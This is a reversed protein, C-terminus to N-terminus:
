PVVIMGTKIVKGSSVIVRVVVEKGGIVVPRFAGTTGHRLLAKPVPAGTQRVWELIKAVDGEALRPDLKKFESFHKSFAHGMKRLPRGAKVSRWPDKGIIKGAKQTWVIRSSHQLESALQLHRAAGLATPGVLQWAAWINTLTRIEGMAEAMQEYSVAPPQVEQGTEYQVEQAQRSITVASGAYGGLDRRKLPYRSGLDASKAFEEFDTGTSKAHEVVRSMKAIKDTKFVVFYGALHPLYELEGIKTEAEISRDQPEDWWNLPWISYARDIYWVEMVQKGGKGAKVRIEVEDLDELGEPDVYRLPNNKAFLYNCPGNPELEYRMDPGTFCGWEPVYTRNRFYYDGRHADYERGQFQYRNEVQESTNAEIRCGFADYDYENVTNGDADVVRLVSGVHNCLYYYFAKEGTDVNIDVFGLRQDIDKLLWYIRKRDVTGDGDEDVYEAVVDDADYVMRTVTDGVTM